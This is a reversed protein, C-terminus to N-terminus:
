VNADRNINSDLGINSNGDIVASGNIDISGGIIASGSISANGDVKFDSGEAAWYSFPVPHIRQSGSLAVYDDNTPDEDENATAERVGVEIYIADSDFVCGPLDGTVQGINVSFRGTYATVNDHEETFLCNVNEGSPDDSLTFRLDAQGNLSQGNYELIGNYPIARPGSDLESDEAMSSFGVALIMGVLVGVFVLLTNLTTNLTLGM